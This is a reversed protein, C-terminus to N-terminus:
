GFSIIAKTAMAADLMLRLQSESISHDKVYRSFNNLQWDVPSDEQVDGGYFSDGSDKTNRASFCAIYRNLFDGIELLEKHQISADADGLAMLFVAGIGPVGDVPFIGAKRQCDVALAQGDNLGSELKEM